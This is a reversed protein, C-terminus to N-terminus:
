HQVERVGPHKKLDFEFISDSLVANTNTGAILVETTSGAKDTLVVKTIISKKKDVTIIAQKISKRKDNPALQIQYQTTTNGTVTGSFDKLFQGSIINKPSFAEETAESAKSVLVEPGGDYHYVKNGNCIVEYTGAKVYYKNGKISVTGKQIGTTKGNKDKQNLTFAAQIGKAEIFRKQLDNMIRTATTDVGAHAVLSLLTAVTVAVLSNLKTLM